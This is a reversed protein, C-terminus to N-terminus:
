GRGRRAFVGHIADVDIPKTLHVDFGADLARRRDEPQGYGTLAILYVAGGHVERVRRAVGFGDLGPLGIDVVMVDPRKALAREVGALGDGVAEVRHGSRRLILQLVERSDPNDEVILVDCGGAVVVGVDVSAVSAERRVVEAAAGAVAARLPLRVTFVSGKGVGDSQAVVGGGHLEVLSRVLTLGIGMGGKARDLTSEVQEFLEFVRGLMDPALGVGTDAVSLVAMGDLARVTVDIRGGAGTYKVANNLLNVAVQELRVADGEVYWPGGDVHFSLELGQSAALASVAHVSREALQGLDLRTRQLVVKGSTVRSVDLLDDVLRALNTAQRRLIELYRPSKAPEDDLLRAAMLIASLPNRLEHGLMALFQDRQRVARQQHLLEGRAAYQRRRARLAARAASVMTIPRLPRDLLMVNGLPALLQTTPLRASVAAREGTFLVVPLDSWSEQGDLLLRLREFAAPVLVEEAIFLGAAGELEFRGCLEDIDACVCGALGAQALLKCTLFGDRGTPALV